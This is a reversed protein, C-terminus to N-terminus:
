PALSSLSVAYVTGIDVAAVGNPLGGFPTGLPAGVALVPANGVVGATLFDGLRGLGPASEGAIALAPVPQLGSGATFRFVRVGGSLAKGSVNGVPSGVAIGAFGKGGVRPIVAVAQGMRESAVVGEAAIGVGNPDLLPPKNTPAVGDVWPQPLQKALYSGLVVWAAGVSNGSKAHGVAGVVLDPLADGDLDGAGLAFGGQAGAENAYLVVADSGAHKCKPGYGFLVAVAGQDNKGPQDAASIGVAIEDCGDGDVDGLGVVSRGMADNAAPAYWWADACQVYTGATTGQKRGRVLMAGGCNIRNTQDWSVGGAVLDDLGDGDFDFSGALTDISQGAQPGYILWRPNKTAASSSFVYVAGLDNAAKFTNAKAPDAICSVAAPLAVYASSFTTPTDENRAVMAFDPKGDGDFNGANALAFGAGDGASHGTYDLWDFAQKPDFPSGKGGFLWLDGTTAEGGKPDDFNPAGTVLDATGDGDVDGVIALAAGYRDGSAAGPVTLKSAAPGAGAFVYFRGVGAGLDNNSPAVAFVAPKGSNDPKPLVGSFLGFRDSNATGAWQLAPTTSPWVGKLGAYVALVGADTPSAPTTGSAALEGLAHGVLLDNSGNGDVDGISVGGGFADGAKPGQVIWAADLCDGMAATPDMPLATGAFLELAGSNSTPTKLAFNDHGRHTVALDAKGDGDVDGMAMWRGFSSQLDLLSKPAWARVPQDTLGGQTTKSAKIGRYLFVAGDGAATAGPQQYNLAGVALDCAGDGDFDGAALSQGLRLSAFDKWSGDPQPLAGFLKQEAKDLFGSDHGLFIHVAGQDTQQPSLDRDEGLQAAVALDMFGDGNFDCVALATGFQDSGFPGILVRDPDPAFLGTKDDREFISVQGADGAGADALPAGVVLELEGDNDFDGAAVAAGFREDQGAGHLVQSAETSLGVATGRYLFVAGDNFHSVDAEPWGVAVDTWEKGPGPLPVVQAQEFYDGTRPLNPMLPQAVEAQVTATQGTLADQLTLTVPQGTVGAAHLTTGNVQMAATAGAIAVQGSGGTWQVVADSGLPIVWREPVPQLKAGTQVTVTVLVSQGTGSDQVAIVDAGDKSGAIYTGEKLGAVKGGSQNVAFSYAFNGSGKSPKITVKTGPPVLATLPVVAMPEIVQLQSQASGICGFDTLTVTDTVSSVDGSLYTGTYQNVLANSNNQTLEYHYKGTGGSASLQVIDLPLVQKSAPLLQLPPNCPQLTPLEPGSDFGFSVDNATEPKADTTEAKADTTEAKADPVEAAVEPKADAAAIEPEADKAADAADKFADPAADAVADPAADPAVDPGADPGSDM